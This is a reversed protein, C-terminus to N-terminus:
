PDSSHKQTQIQKSTRALLFHLCVRNNGPFAFDPKGMVKGRKVCFRVWRRGEALENCLSQWAHLKNNCWRCSTLFAGAKTDDAACYAKVTVNGIGLRSGFYQKQRFFGIRRSVCIFKSNKIRLIHRIYEAAVVQTWCDRPNTAILVVAKAHAAQIASAIERKWTWYNWSRTGSASFTGARSGGVNTSSMFEM